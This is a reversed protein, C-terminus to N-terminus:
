SSLAQSASYRVFDFENLVFLFSGVSSIKFCMFDIERMFFERAYGVAFLHM